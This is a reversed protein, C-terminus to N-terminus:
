SAQAMAVLLVVATVIIFIVLLWIMFYPPKDHM